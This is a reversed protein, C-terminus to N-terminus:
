LLSHGKAQVRLNPKVQLMADAVARRRAINQVLQAASRWVVAPAMVVIAVVVSVMLSRTRSM